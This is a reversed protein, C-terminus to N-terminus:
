RFRLEMCAACTYPGCSKLVGHRLKGWELVPNTDNDAGHLTILILRPPVHLHCPVCQGCVNAASVQLNFSLGTVCPVTWTQGM